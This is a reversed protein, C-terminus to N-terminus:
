LLVVDEDRRPRGALTRARRERGPRPLRPAGRSGPRRRLTRPDRQNGSGHGDRIPEGGRRAAPRAERPDRPPRRPERIREGPVEPGRAPPGEEEGRRPAEARARVRRPGRREPRAREDPM